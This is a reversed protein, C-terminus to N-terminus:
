IKSQIYGYPLGTLQENKAGNQLDFNLILDHRTEHVFVVCCASAIAIEVYKNSNDM